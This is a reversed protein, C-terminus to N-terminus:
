VIFVYVIWTNVIFGKTVFLNIKSETLLQNQTARFIEGIKMFDSDIEM